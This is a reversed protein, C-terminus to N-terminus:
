QIAGDDDMLIARLQRAQSEFAKMTKSLREADAPTPPRDGRVIGEFIASAGAFVREAELLWAATAARQEVRDAM